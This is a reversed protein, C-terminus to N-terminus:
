NNKFLEWGLWAWLGFFLKVPLLVIALLIYYATDTLEMFDQVLLHSNQCKTTSSDSVEYFMRAVKDQPKNSAILTDITYGCGFITRKFVLKPDITENNVLKIQSCM